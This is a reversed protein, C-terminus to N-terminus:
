FGVKKDDQSLCGRRLSGESIVRNLNFAWELMNERRELENELM